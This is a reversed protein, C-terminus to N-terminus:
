SLEELNIKFGNVIVSSIEGRTRAQSVLRFEGGENIYVEIVKEIPDVIWYEKVGAVAYRDKKVRLDYYATAPSLIEVVLDPVGEIRKEGIIHLRDKSIFVIDPQYVDIDSLYIDIPAFYVKGLGRGEAFNVLRVGLLKLFEQHSPSPSPSMVLEGKVLQYPAGEPLKLYDELTYTKKKEIDVVQPM